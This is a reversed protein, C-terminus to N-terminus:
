KEGIYMAHESYSMLEPLEIYRKALDVWKDVETKDRNILDLKNPALFSEQAFFHLKKLGFQEMFPLINRQNFLYASTFCPGSYDSGSAINDLLVASAPNEADQVILGEHQLDYVVCGFELIFSAYLKGGSKLHQIAMNVSKVRDAEDLLHYLPGMLFVHDFKGLSLKDLELCNCAMASISVNQEGAKQKALAINGDSLDVLTVECGKSAYHISYRGPGGGIDFVSDGPRIYKDMMYTTLEFEFPHTDLREWEREPADDYYQKVTNITDNM